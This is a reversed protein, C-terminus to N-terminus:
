TEVVLNPGGCSRTERRKEGTHSLFCLHLVYDVLDRSCSQTRWLKAYQVEEGLDIFGVLLCVSIYPAKGHDVM